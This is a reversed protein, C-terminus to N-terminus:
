GAVGGLRSMTEPVLQGFGAVLLPTVLLLVGVGVLVQAPLIGQLVNFQPMVRGVLGLAVAVVVSAAVVPLALSVATLFAWGLAGVLAQATTVGDLPSGLPLHRLSLAVAAALMEVGGAALYALAGVTQTWDGAAMGAPGYVPDVQAGITLGLQTDVLGGTIDVVAYVVQAMFGLAAGVVVEQAAQAVLPVVASPVGGAPVAAAPLAGLAVIVAVLARVPGPLNGGGLLPATAVLGGARALLLWFVALGPMGLVGSWDM